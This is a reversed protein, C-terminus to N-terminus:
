LSTAISKIQKKTLSAGQSTLKYFVGGNVWAASSNSIFITIGQERLTTYNNEWAKKAYNTELASSDWSSKEETLTFSSKDANSFTM